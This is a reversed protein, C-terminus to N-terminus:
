SLRLTTARLWSFVPGLPSACNSRPDGFPLEIEDDGDIARQLEGHDLKYFFAIHSGGRGEEFSKNFSEKGCGVTSGSLPM